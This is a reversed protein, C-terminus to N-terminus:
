GEKRNLFYRKLYILNSVLPGEALVHFFELGFEESEVEFGQGNLENDTRTWGKEEINKGNRNTKKSELSMRNLTGM